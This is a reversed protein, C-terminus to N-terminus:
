FIAKVHRRAPPDAQPDSAGREIALPPADATPTASSPASGDEPTWVAGLGAAIRIRLRRNLEEDVRECEGPGLPCRASAPWTAAVIVFGRRSAANPKARASDSVM